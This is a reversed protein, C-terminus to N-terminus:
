EELTATITVAGIKDFDTGDVGNVVNVIEATVDDLHGRANLDVGVERSSGIWIRCASGSRKARFELKTM